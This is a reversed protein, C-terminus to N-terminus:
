WMGFKEIPNLDPSQPPWQLESFEKEHEHTLKLHDKSQSIIMNASVMLLHFITAMFLHVHDAAISLHAIVNLNHNVFKSTVPGFTQRLM